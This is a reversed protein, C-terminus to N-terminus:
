NYDMPCSNVDTQVSQGIQMSDDRCGHLKCSKKVDLTKIIYHFTVTCM